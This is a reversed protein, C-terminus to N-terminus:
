ATVSLQENGSVDSAEDAIVSYWQASSVEDIIGNLIKQGMLKILKNAIKPSIYERKQLWANMKPCEEAQLLLLQYLNGQFAESSENHGRFALGQKGLFRIARLLKFLMSRHFEQDSAIEKNFLNGIHGNSERYELRELSERHMESKEYM